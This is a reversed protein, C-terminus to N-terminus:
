MYTYQHPRLKISSSRFEFYDIGENPRYIQKASRGKKTRDGSKVMSEIAKSQGVRDLEIRSECIRSEGMGKEVCGQQDLLVGLGYTGPFCGLHGGDLAGIPHPNPQDLAAREMSLYHQLERPNNRIRAGRM